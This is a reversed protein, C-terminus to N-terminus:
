DSLVSPPSTKTLTRVVVAAVLLAIAVLFLAATLLPGPSPVFDIPYGVESFTRFILEQGAIGIASGAVLGVVLIFGLEFAVSRYLEGSTVGLSRLVAIERSRQSAAALCSALLALTAGILVVLSIQRLTALGNVVNRDGRAQGAERTEVRFGSDPGLTARISGAAESPSVGPRLKVGVMSARDDGWNKAFTDYGMAIAGPQWGYNSITAVYNLSNNGTPTKLGVREGLKFEHENALASSIAFDGTKPLGATMSSRDGQLFENENLPRQVGRAYAIVLVRRDQVDLFALRYARLSEVAPLKGIAAIERVDFPETGINNEAGDVSIWLDGADFMNGALSAMGHQLNKSTGGILVLTGFCAAAIAALVTARVPAGRLSMVGLQGVGRPSPLWTSALGLSAAALGPLLLGGGVIMLILGITTASPVAVAIAVGAALLFGGVGAAAGIWRRSVQDGVRHTARRPSPSLQRILRVTPLTGGIVAVTTGAIVAMAALEASIRVDSTVLFAAQLYQPGDGTLPGLAFKSLLVGFLSGLIGLVAAEAASQFIVVSRPTGLLLLVETDKRRDFASLAAINFVLLGGILLALSAFVSALERELITGSQILRADQGRTKIDALGGTARSLAAIQDRSPVQNFRVLIRGVRGSTGTLDQALGLPAFALPMGGVADDARGTLIRAVLVTRSRRGDVIRVADGVNVRLSNAIENSLYIGLGSEDKPNMMESNIAAPRFSALRQDAGVLAVRLSKSAYELRVLNQSAPAAAQVGPSAEVRRFVGVPMGAENRAVVYLSANGAVAKELREYAEAPARDIAQISLM